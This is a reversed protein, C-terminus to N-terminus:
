YKKLDRIKDRIKAAKEFNLEEAELKMLKELRKIEKKLENPPLQKYDIDQWEDKKGELQEEIVEDILKERIPKTIQEPKINHKEMIDHM